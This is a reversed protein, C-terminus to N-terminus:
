WAVDTIRVIPSARLAGWSIGEYVARLAASYTQFMSRTPTATLGADDVIPLPITDEEHITAETSVDFTPVPLVRAVSGGDILYVDADAVNQSIVVPLDILRRSAMEPFQLAGTASILMRLAVANLPSIVWVLGASSLGQGLLIGIAKKLDATITAPTAGTSPFTNGAPLGNLIGAPSVEAVSADTSLFKTDFATASDILISERIVREISPTSRQLLELTFSGIVAPAYPLLKVGHLKLAGVRIPDSEKRWTAALNPTSSSPDRSPITISTAGNFTEDQLPLSAFVSVKALEKLFAGYAERTLEKAWGAVNTMAPGQADKVMIALADSQKRNLDGYRAAAIDQIAKREIAAIVRCTLAQWLPAARDTAPPIDRSAAITTTKVPAVSAPTNPPNMAKIEIMLQDATADDGSDLASQIARRLIEYQQTQNM